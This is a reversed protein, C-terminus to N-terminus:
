DLFPSPVEDENSAGTCVLRESARSIAASFSRLEDYRIDRLRSRTSM